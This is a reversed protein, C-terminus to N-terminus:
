KAVSGLIHHGLQYRRWGHKFAGVDAILTHSIAEIGNTIPRSWRTMTQALSRATGEAALTRVLNSQPRGGDIRVRDNAVLAKRNAPANEFCATSVGGDVSM